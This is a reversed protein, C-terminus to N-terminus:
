RMVLGNMMGCTTSDKTIDMRPGIVADWPLDLSTGKRVRMVWCVGGAEREREREKERLNNKMKEETKKNKNKKEAKKFGREEKLREDSSTVM